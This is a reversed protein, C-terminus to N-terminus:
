ALERIARLAGVYDPHHSIEDVIERYRIVGAADVALIARTLLRLEKLHLGLADGFSVERHDSLLRHRISEVAIYRAQAFPLDVSVTIVEVGAPLADLEENFRRTQASCVSTDLSPVINFLIPRGRLDSSRVETLDPAVLTFDPLREGEGVDPGALTMEQGLFTVRGVREQM